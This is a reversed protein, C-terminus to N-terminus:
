FISCDYTTQIDQLYTTTHKSFTVFRLSPFMKEEKHQQYLLLIYSFRLNYNFSLHKYKFVSINQILFIIIMM